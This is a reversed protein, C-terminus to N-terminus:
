SLKQLWEQAMAIQPALRPPALSLFRGLSRLADERFGGRVEASGKAFWVEAANPAAMAAEEFCRIADGYRGMDALLVGQQYRATAMMPEGATLGQVAREFAPAADEWRKLAALCQARLLLGHGSRMNTALVQEVLPLAEAPRGREFLGQAQELQPDGSPPVRLGLAPTGGGAGSVVAAFARPVDPQVPEPLTQAVLEARLKRAAPHKPSLELVKDLSRLADDRRGQGALLSGRALWSERDSADLEIAKDFCRLAEVRRGTALLVEAKGRWLEAHAPGPQTQGLGQELLELAERSKGRKHADFAREYWSPGPAPVRAAARALPGGCSTCTSARV